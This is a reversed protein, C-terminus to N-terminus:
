SCDWPFKMELSPDWQVQHEEFSSCPPNIILLVIFKDLGDKAMFFFLYCWDPTLVAKSKHM